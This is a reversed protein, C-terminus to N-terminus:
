EPRVCCAEDPQSVRSVARKSVARTLPVVQRPARQDSQIAILRDEIADLVKNLRELHTRHFEIQAAGVEANEASAEVTKLLARINEQLQQVQAAYRGKEVTLQRILNADDDRALEMKFTFYADVVANVIYESAEASNTKIGIKVLESDRIRKVHLKRTLWARKDRQKSVVELRAVEPSALAKDIVTPSRLLAIQTSIYANYVFETPQQQNEFLFQPKVSRVQILAQAEYQTPCLM